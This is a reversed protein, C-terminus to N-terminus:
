GEQGEVFTVALGSAGEPPNPVRTNFSGSEGPALQDVAMSFTWSHIENESADLLKGQLKPVPRPRSTTNTIEGSIVLVVTDGEREQAPSVNRLELGYGPEQGLGVMGYLMSAPPWVDIIAARGFFGGGFIIGFVAVIGVWMFIPGRSKAQRQQRRTRTRPTFAPLEFDDESPADAEISEISPVEIEEAEDSVTEERVDEYDPDSDFNDPIPIVPEPEEEVVRKPMDQPPLEKWTHACKSCRVSRGNPLLAEPKINFRAECSPCTLIM